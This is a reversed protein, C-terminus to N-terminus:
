EWGSDRAYCIWQERPPFDDGSRVERRLQAHFSRAREVKQRFQFPANYISRYAQELRNFDMQMRDLNQAVYVLQTGDQLPRIIRWELQSSVYDSQRAFQTY